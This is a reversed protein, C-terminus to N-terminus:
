LQYPLISTDPLNTLQGLTEIIKIDDYVVNRYEERVKEMDVLLGPCTKAVNRVERHGIIAASGKRLINPFRLAFYKTVKYFTEWQGDTWYDYDGHGEFCIGVSMRNMGGNRCHAGIEEMHRGHQYTGDRKVFGHYGVHPLDPSYRSVYADDRRFGRLSHWYDIDAIDLSREGRYGATHILIYEPKNM